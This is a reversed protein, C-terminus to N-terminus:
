TPGGTHGQVGAPAGRGTWIAQIRSHVNSYITRALIQQICFSHQIVQICLSLASRQDGSARRTLTHSINQNDLSTEPKTKAQQQRLSAPGQWM